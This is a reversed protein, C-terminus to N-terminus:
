VSSSVFVSLSERVGIKEVVGVKEIDSDFDVVWVFSADSDLDGDPGDTVSVGLMVATEDTTVTEPPDGDTVSVVVKEIVSEFVLTTVPVPDLM